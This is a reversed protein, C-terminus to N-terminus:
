GFLGSPLRDIVPRVDEREAHHEILHRGPPQREGPLRGGVGHGRDQAVCRDAHGLQLRAQGVVQAADDAATELLVRLRSELGGAVQM